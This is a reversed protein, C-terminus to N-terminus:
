RRVNQRPSAPVCLDSPPSGPKLDESRRQTEADPHRGRLKALERNISQRGKTMVWIHNSYFLLKLVWSLRRVIWKNVMVRWDFQIECWEGDETIRCEMRGDFDGWVTVHFREGYVAEDVRGEFRLTYPLWGKVHCSFEQGAAWDEAANLTKSELFASPWWRALDEPRRTIEAIEWRTAQVRWRTRVHYEHTDLKGPM